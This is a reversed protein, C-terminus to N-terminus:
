NEFERQALYREADLAAMCGTGSSTIAQKYFPDMVDGATFIGEVSTKTHEKGGKVMIYGYDSLDVKGKLFGTNPILGIAIFAGDIELTQKEGTEQSTIEVTKVQQRDGSFGSVTSNYIVKIDPNNLVRKQMPVSATFTDKIHIVTIDKTFKHLFSADEMASDGGGIVIVKKDKYFAGDCVACTTVGKGWYEDEGSVGLRRPSAGTAIIIAHAQITQDDNTTITFPRKSTDIDKVTKAFFRCGFHKAHERMNMILTPGLISTDGPWNEVYSTGMLQGGPKNGDLIIPKLDARSSYLGATLGAPGSGIIVLNEIKETNKNSNDQSM